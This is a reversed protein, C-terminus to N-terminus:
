DLILFTPTFKLLILLNETIAWAKDTNKRVLYEKALEEIISPAQEAYKTCEDYLAKPSWDCLTLLLHEIGDQTVLVFFFFFLVIM